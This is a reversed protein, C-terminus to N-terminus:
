AARAARVKALQRLRAPSVRALSRMRLCYLVNDHTAQKRVPRRNFSIDGEALARHCAETAIVILAFGGSSATFRPSLRRFGVPQSAARVSPRIAHQHCEAACGWTIEGLTIDESEAAIKEALVKTSPHYFLICEKRLAAPFSAPNINRGEKPSLPGSLAGSTMETDAASSALGASPPRHLAVARRPGRSLGHSIHAHRRLCALPGVTM